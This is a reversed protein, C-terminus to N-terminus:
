YVLQIFLTNLWLFLNDTILKILLQIFTWIYMIKHNVIENKSSDNILLTIKKIIVIM